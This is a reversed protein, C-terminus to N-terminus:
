VCVVSVFHHEPRMNFRGHADDTTAQGDDAVEEGAVDEGAASRDGLLWGSVRFGQDQRGLGNVRRVLAEMAVVGEGVECLDVVGVLRRRHPAIRDRPRPGRACCRVELARGDSRVKM